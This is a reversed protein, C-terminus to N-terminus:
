YSVGILFLGEAPATPGSRTRDRAELARVVDKISWKGQGVWSLTGVMNRVQRYLFSRARAAVILFDGTRMVTLEDLTKIPSKAQCGAARFSSFDHNGHLMRAAAAMSDTDLPSPVWWVRGFELAPPSRRNLIHYEYHRETASLRAHFDKDVIEASVISIPYPRIHSNLADRVRDSEWDGSLDFHAVQGCAHVGADTRGACHSTVEEGSFVRVAREIVEQVGLGNEQRQWGVFPGGDYEITLKFRPM